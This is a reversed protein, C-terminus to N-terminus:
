QLTKAQKEPVALIVWDYVLEKNENLIWQGNLNNISNIVQYQVEKEEVLNSVFSVM